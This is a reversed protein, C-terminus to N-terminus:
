IILPFLFLLFLPLQGCLGSRFSRCWVDGGSSHWCDRFEASTSMFEAALIFNLQDELFRHLICLFSLGSFFALCLSRICIWLSFCANQFLYGLILGPPPSKNVCVELSLGSLADEDEM